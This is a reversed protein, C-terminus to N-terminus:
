LEVGLIRVVRVVFEPDSQLKVNYEEEFEKPFVWDFLDETLKPNSKLCFCKLEEMNKM